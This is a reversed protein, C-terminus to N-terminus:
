PPIRAGSCVSLNALGSRKTPGETFFREGDRMQFRRKVKFRERDADSELVLLSTYPTMIHFEESLAIIDAQVEPSAGQSLLQDLHMRAWLRPIFSNGKEADQLRIRSQYTVDREGFKGSVIVDRSALADLDDHSVVSREDARDLFRERIGRDVVQRDLRRPQTPRQPM